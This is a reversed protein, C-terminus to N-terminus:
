GGLISKSGLNFIDDTLDGGSFLTLGPQKGKGSSKTRKRLATALSSNPDKQAQLLDPAKPISPAKPPKLGEVLTIPDLPLNTARSLESLGGTAVGKVVRGFTGGGM